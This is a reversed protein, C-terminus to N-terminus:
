LTKKIETAAAEAKTRESPTLQELTDKIHKRLDEDGTKQECLTLWAAGEIRGAPIGMGRFLAVGYKYMGGPHGQKASLKFWKVAEPFSAEDIRSLIFSGLNAQAIPHGQEAAKKTWVIAQMDDKAIGVGDKYCVGLKFQSEIDDKEAAKRYWKAMEVLDVSVGDGDELCMALTHMADVHGQEAARRCWVAAEFPDKVTGVGERHM